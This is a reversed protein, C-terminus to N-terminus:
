EYIAEKLKNVDFGVVRNIEREDEFIITTPLSKLSYKEIADFDNMVNQSEFAIENNELWSNLASCPPCNDKYLKLIKRM